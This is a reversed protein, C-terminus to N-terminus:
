GACRLAPMAHMRVQIHDRIRVRARFLIMKLNSLGVWPYSFRDAGPQTAGCSKAM